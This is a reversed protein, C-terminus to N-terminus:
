SEGVAERRDGEEDAGHRTSGGEQNTQRRGIFAESLSRNVNEKLLSLQILPLEGM